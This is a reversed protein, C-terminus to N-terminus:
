VGCGNAIKKIEKQYQEPTLNLMAIRKKEAEYKSYNPAQVTKGTSMYDGHTTLGAGSRGALCRPM